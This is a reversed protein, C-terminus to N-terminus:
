LLSNLLQLTRDYGYKQILKTTTKTIEKRDLLMKLTNNENTLWQLNELRNDDRKGNIHDVTWNQYDEKPNFSQLVLRHLLYNKSNISVKRYGDYDVSGLHIIKTQKNRVRGLNSVEHQKSCFTDIWIENPLFGSDTTGKKSQVIQFYSIDLNQPTINEVDFYWIKDIKERKLLQGKKAKAVATRPFDTLLQKTTTQVIKATEEITYYHDM